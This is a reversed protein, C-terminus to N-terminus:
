RKEYKGGLLVQIDELQEKNTVRYQIWGGDGCPYKNDIYEQTYKSVREYVADYQKNTLRMMVTFAGQEVFINCMLKKNKYHGIGWGYSNGYPFVQKSETNFTSTLWENFSSFLTECEGCYKEMEEMTPKEQKNLLREYM